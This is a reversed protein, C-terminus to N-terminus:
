MVGLCSAKWLQGTTVVSVMETVPVKIYAAIVGLRGKGPPEWKRAALCHWWFLNSKENTGDLLQWQGIYLEERGMM